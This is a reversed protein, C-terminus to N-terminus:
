LEMRDMSWLELHQVADLSVWRMSASPTARGAEDIEDFPDIKLVRDPFGIFRLSHIGADRMRTGPKNHLEVNMLDDNFCETKSAESMDNLIRIASIKPLFPVLLGFLDHGEDAIALGLQELHPCSRVLRALDETDLKWSEPLLLRRLTQGHCRSITEVFDKGLATGSSLHPSDPTEPSSHSSPRLEGARHGRFNNNNIIYLEELGSTDAICGLHANTMGDGRLFKLRPVIAPLKQKQWSQEFFVSEDRGFSNIATCSRLTKFDLVDHFSDDKSAYLNQIGLSELQMRHNAARCRGFYSHVNVSPELSRRMRPSWHLKLHRLQPSRLLLDSIDDPYCLPDIDTVKLSQLSPIGPLVKVPCPLRQTPFKVELSRLTPRLALAQYVGHLMKTNLNWNFSQLKEMRAIATRIMISLMMSRDTVRGVNAYEEVEYEKWRGTLTWSHVLGAVNRTMLGNLAMIFPSAGGLGEAHGNVYRIGDYSHLTISHYLQPLTMYYLVRCTLCMRALDAVNDLHSVILAILNLPLEIVQSERDSKNDNVRRSFGNELM